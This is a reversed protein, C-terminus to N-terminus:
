CCGCAGGRCSASAERRPAAYSTRRGIMVALGGSIVRRVPKGTDPDRTLPADNMSQRVEFRRVAEGPADPVTEYIYTAM